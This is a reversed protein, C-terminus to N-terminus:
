AAGQGDHSLPKAATALPSIGRQLEQNRLWNGAVCIWGTCATFEYIHVNVMEPAGDIKELGGSMGWGYLLLLRRWKWRLMFFLIIL